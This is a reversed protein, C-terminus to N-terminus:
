HEYFFSHSVYRAVHSGKHAVEESSSGMVGDLRTSTAKRPRTHMSRNVKNKAHHKPFTSRLLASNSKTLCEHSSPHFAYCGLSISTAETDGGCAEGRSEQPPPFLKCGDPVHCFQKTNLNSKPVLYFCFMEDLYSIFIFFFQSGRQHLQVLLSRKGNKLFNNSM